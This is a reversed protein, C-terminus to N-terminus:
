AAFRLQMRGFQVIDGSDLPTAGLVREGNVYTGNRSGLDRLTWQGHEFSVEAHHGSVFRDDLQIANDDARGITAYHGLPIAEGPAYSSQAPELIELRSVQSPIASPAQAPATGFAVLERLTVRAVWFLFLYILLIFLLRLLLIFWDFPLSTSGLM